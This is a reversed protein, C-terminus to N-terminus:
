SVKGRWYELTEELTQELPIERKWGCCEKLRTVDAEIVPVDVPRLKAPDTEVRIAASSMSLIKDLIESVAVAVGSGVNYTEGAQGQEMLLVYARVVDRVDTFDRRASLNGVRLVPERIGTEIEAAQKCFDAVVFSPSQNPGIHNFSRVSVIDMGYADAYIKGIMNQCAKTLAYPNGPRPATDESVPVEEPRVRGYEECSGILLVRPRYFPRSEGMLTRVGDLVHMTGKINVDVTLDPNKWSLAVSSQAALHFIYDPRLRSLLAAVADRNLIDLDWTNVGKHVFQEGEMKTADVLWDHDEQIRDILYSGVFGAAGIVLAKKKMQM